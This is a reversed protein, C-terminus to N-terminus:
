GSSSEDSSQTKCSSMANKMACGGEKFADGFSQMKNKMSNMGCSKIYCAGLASLAGFAFAIGPHGRKDNKKGSM